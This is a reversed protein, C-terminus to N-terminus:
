LFVLVRVPTMIGVLWKDAYTGRKRKKRRRKKKGGEKEVGGDLIDRDLRSQLLLNAVAERSSLVWFAQGRWPYAPWWTVEPSMAAVLAQRQSYSLLPLCLDGSSLINLFSKNEKKVLLVSTFTHLTGEARLM